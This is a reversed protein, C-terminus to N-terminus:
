LIKKFVALGLPLKISIKLFLLRNPMFWLSVVNIKKIKCAKYFFSIHNAANKWNFSFVTSDIVYYSGYVWKFSRRTYLSLDYYQSKVTHPTLQLTKGIQCWRM